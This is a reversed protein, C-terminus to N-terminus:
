CLQKVWNCLYTLPAAKNKAENTKIELEKKVEVFIADVADNIIDQEGLAAIDPDALYLGVAIERMRAYVEEPM